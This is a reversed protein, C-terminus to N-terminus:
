EPTNHPLLDLEDARRHCIVTCAPQTFATFHAANREYCRAIRAIVGRGGHDAPHRRLREGRPDELRTQGPRGPQALRIGGNVARVHVSDVSVRSWDITGAFGLLDLTTRHLRALM